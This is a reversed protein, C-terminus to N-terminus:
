EGSESLFLSLEEIITEIHELNVSIYQPENEENIKVQSIYVITAEGGENKYIDVYPKTM